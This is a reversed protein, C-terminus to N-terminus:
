LREMFFKDIVRTAENAYKSSVHEIDYFYEDPLIDHIDEKNEFNYYYYGRSEIFERMYDDVTGYYDGYRERYDSRHPTMFLYFDIGNERCYICINNLSELSYKGITGDPIELNEANQVDQMFKVTDDATWEPEVREYDVKDLSFAYGMGVRDHKILRTLKTIFVNTIYELDGTSDDIWPFWAKISDESDLNDVEISESLKSTFDCIKNKPFPYSAIVTRRFVRESVSAKNKALTDYGSLLVIRKVPNQKAAIKAADLSTPFNQKPTCMNYSKIGLESNAVDAIMMEGVSNGVYVTDIGSEYTYQTWMTQSNDSLPELIFTMVGNIAWFIVTFMLIKVIRVRLASKDSHQM